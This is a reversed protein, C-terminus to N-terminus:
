VFWKACVLFPILALFIKLLLLVLMQAKVTKMKKSGLLAPRRAETTSPLKLNIYCCMTAVLSLALQHLLVHYGGLEPIQAKVTKMKKSDLLAPRRAETTSPLKLNIYSCMTAVLSLALQHLQVHYGGLEPIQAKVTKMKKSGLLAPRRAETTSPLKTTSTKKTLSEPESAAASPPRCHCIMDQLSRSPRTSLDQMFVQRLKHVTQPEKAVSEELGKVDEGAEKRQENLLGCPTNPKDITSHRGVVRSIDDDSGKDDDNQ